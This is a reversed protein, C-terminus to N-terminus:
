AMASFQISPRGIPVAAPPMRTGLLRILESFIQKPTGAATIEQYNRPRYFEIVDASTERYLELRRRIASPNDDARRILVAGDRNCRIQALKPKATFISGCTPCQRRRSLRDIIKEIALRFNIVVPEPLNLQKLLADLFRAQSATRPYGDLIFGSQCDIQRLREAVVQNILDDSVLQGSAMVNEVIKGLESQSQAAQRLMEGTSIAPIALTESFRAAQTGKGAGPPGFFIIVANPRHM